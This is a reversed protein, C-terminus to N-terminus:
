MVLAEISVFVLGRTEDDSSSIVRILEFSSSIICMAAKLRTSVTTIIKM